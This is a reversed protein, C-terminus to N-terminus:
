GEKNENRERRGREEKCLVRGMLCAPNFCKIVFFPVDSSQNLKTMKRTVQKKNRQKQRLLKREKGQHPSMKRLRSKM